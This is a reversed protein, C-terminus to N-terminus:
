RSAQRRSRPAPVAARSLRAPDVADALSAPLPSPLGEITAVLHEAALSSWVLGRSGYGTLLYLGTARRRAWLPAVSRSDQEDAGSSARLAAGVAPLRDVTACRFAARGQACAPDIRDLRARLPEDDDLLGRLRSLNRAHGAATPESSAGGYDVGAIMTGDVPPLLYGAGTLVCRPGRGAAPLGTLQGRVAQLPLAAAGVGALLRSADHANALVVVTAQGLVRGDAGLLRWGAATRSLAVVAADTRLRVPEGAIQLRLACFRPPRAWGGRPYWAGGHALRMGALASAEARGVIRAIAPVGLRDVADALLQADPGHAALQLTGCRAAVGAELAGLRDFERHLAALGARSLRSLTCDDASVHPHFAGALNGSARTAVAPGQEYLDVVWGHRALEAAVATGALGAGVVAARRPAQPSGLAEPRGADAIWRRRVTWRPAHTAATLAAPGAPAHDIRFGAEQLADHLATSVSLAVLRAGPAALRGLRRLLLHPADVEADAADLVLLDVRCRLDRALEVPEGAHTTVIVKGGDIEIRQADRAATPWAHDAPFDAGAQLVADASRRFGLLHLRGCRSPDDRWARHLAALRGGAGLRTDLVTFADRARWAQPLGCAELWFAADMAM